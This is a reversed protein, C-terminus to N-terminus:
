LQDRDKFYEFVLLSSDFRELGHGCLMKGPRMRPGSEKMIGVINNRNASPKAALPHAEGGNARAIPSDKPRNNLFGKAAGAAFYERTNSCALTTPSPKPIFRCSTM